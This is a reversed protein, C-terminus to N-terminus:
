STPLVPACCVSGAETALEMARRVLQLAELVDSRREAPIFSLVSWVTQGTMGQLRLAESHGEETLTVIVRRRDGDARRREVYGRRVLGDVLRTTASVSAGSRGALGSVDLDGELLAQLVVCQAVSVDGCCVAEREFAVFFRCIQVLERSIRNM